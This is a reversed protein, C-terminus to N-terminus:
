LQLVQLLSETRCLKFCLSGPGKCLFNASGQELAQSNLMLFILFNEASIFIKWELLFVFLMFSCSQKWSNFINYLCHSMQHSPYHRNPSGKYNLQYLIRRCHSLGPNSGQTPCIGQLISLSGVGTNQGPPYWLSYLGHPRLSDSM